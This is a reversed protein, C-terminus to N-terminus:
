VCTYSRYHTMYLSWSPAAPVPPVVGVRVRLVLTCRWSLVIFPRMSSFVFQLEITDNCHGHIMKEPTEDTGVRRSTLSVKSRM